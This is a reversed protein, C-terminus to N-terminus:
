RVPVDVQETVEISESDALNAELFAWTDAVEDIKMSTPKGAGHGASRDVRLIVPADGEHAHQLAAAYKFSHAPVVRDDTDATTVMTPPYSTGDQLRHYPSYAWIAPFEDADKPDGYEKTWAHGITFEPFRVMDMVGVSPICAGWLDPRQTMCAGVLLGGNSGGQIGLNKPSTYGNEILWEGAAIFDDFVNQKNDMMGGQHWAEGYEGGGRLNALAYINGRELWAIRSPSFYPTLAINFGGYGYLLTPTNGDRVLGKKYTLFMPVMTGDASQYWVQQVVYDDPNFDVEAQRLLESKGTALDVRYSSPPTTFSSFSYFTEMDDSRGGFGSATGIGPLQINEMLTGDMAYRQVHSSADSLYNAIFSNGVHSVGRLTAENEPIIERIESPSDQDIAVLRGRSADRDTMFFLTGGDNGVFTWANEFHPILPKLTWDDTSLDAISVRSPEGGQWINVILYRGDETVSPSFGWEPHDPERHVLVDKSQDTGPVHYWLQQNENAAVLGTGEKPADYRAYFFGSGDPRWAAGSFKSWEIDDTLDTGTKLDRVKWSKWDSGGDSVGYAMYRGDKSFSLGNLATTGEKSWANPDIIVSPEDGLSDMGYLVYQNQLGDNAYFYYRGGAKFPATIKEYNWLEELRERIEQRQPITELYDFTVENQADLWDSVKSSERVDDELWRYPDPVATGHYDDIVAGRPTEPYVLADSGQAPALMTLALLVITQM